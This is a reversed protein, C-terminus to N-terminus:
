YVMVLDVVVVLDTSAPLGSSGAVGSTLSTNGAEGFALAFPITIERRGGVKMDKIGTVLGELVKDTGYVFDIPQGGVYTTVIKAGTDARYGVLQLAAHKGAVLADGTGQVLDKVVLADVNASPAVTIQPEDSAKATPLLVSSSTTTPAPTSVSVVDIVFSLASNAPIAGNATAGYGLDAPIDLQLREGAQAGVLGQDWGKIVTGGGLPSVTIPTGRDYSNDFMTGGASLVGVYNVVIADGDKAAAGTGPTVVTTVLKTPTTAPLNVKPKEVTSSPGGAITSGTTTASQVVTTAKADDEPSNGCAGLVLSALVTVSAATRRFRM